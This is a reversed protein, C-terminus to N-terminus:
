RLYEAGDQLIHNKIDAILKERAVSPFMEYPEVQAVDYWCRTLFFAVM